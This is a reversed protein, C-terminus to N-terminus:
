RVWESSALVPRIPFGLHRNTYNGLWYDGQSGSANNATESAKSLYSFFWAKDTNGAAGTSTGREPQDASRLFTVANGLAWTKAKWPGADPYGLNTYFTGTQLPLYISDSDLDLKLCTVGSLTADSRTSKAGLAGLELAHPMRWAVGWKVRAADYKSGAITYSISGGLNDGAGLVDFFSPQHNYHSHTSNNLPTFVTRPNVEGFSYLGGQDQPNEAGLNIPSWKTALHDEAKQNVNTYKGTYNTSTLTVAESPKPRRMLTMGSLDFTGVQGGKTRLDESMVSGNSADANDSIDNMITVIVGSRLNGYPTTSYTIGDATYSYNIAPVAIYIVQSAASASSLTIVSTNEPQYAAFAYTDMSDNVRYWSPTYYQDKTESASIKWYACPTYEICKIGAPLKIRMIYSLKEGNEFDFSPTLGTGDALVYTYNNLGAITGIQDKFSCHIETGHVSAHGGLVAKWSTSATVGEAEAQFTATTNGIGDVINFTVVANDDQIAYFKDGEAWVSSIGGGGGPTNESYSVKTAVNVTATIIQKGDPTTKVDNATDMEKKSCAFVAALLAIASFIKKM